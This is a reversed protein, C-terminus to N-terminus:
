QAVVVFRLSKVGEEAGDRAAKTLEAVQDESLVVPREVLGSVIREVAAQDLTAAQQAQAIPANPNLPGLLQNKMYNFENQDITRIPRPQSLGWAAVLLAYAPSPVVVHHGERDVWLWGGAGKEDVLAVLKLPRNMEILATMRAEAAADFMDGGILTGPIGTLTSRDFDNLMPLPDIRAGTNLDTVEVHPHILGNWEVKAANGSQGTTGIHTRANVRDGVNLPTRSELHAVLVNYRGYRTTIFHGYGDRDFGVRVVVGDGSGWLPTGRPVYYDVGQHTIWAGGPRPDGFRSWNPRLRWGPNVPAFMM